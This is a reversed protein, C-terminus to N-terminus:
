LIILEYFFLVHYTVNLVVPKMLLLVSWELFISKVLCIKIIILLFVVQNTRHPLMHFFTPLSLSSTIGSINGDYGKVLSTSTLTTWQNTHALSGFSVPNDSNIMAKIGVLFFGKVQQCRLLTQFVPAFSRYLRLRKKPLHLKIHAILSESM